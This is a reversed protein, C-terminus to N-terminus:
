LVQNYPIYRNEQVVMLPSFYEVYKKYLYFANIKKPSLMRVDPKQRALQYSLEISVYKMSGSNMVDFAEEALHDLSARIYLNNQFVIINTVKGITGQYILPIDLLADCKLLANKKMFLQPSISVIAEMLAKKRNVIRIELDASLYEIADKM